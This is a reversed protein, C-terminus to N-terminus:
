ECDGGVTLVWGVPSVQVTVLPVPVTADELTVLTATEQEELVPPLPVKQLGYVAKGTGPVAPPLVPKNTIGEL